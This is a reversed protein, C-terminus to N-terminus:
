RTGRLVSLTSGEVVTSMRLRASGCHYNEARDSFLRDGSRPTRLRLHAVEQAATCGDELLQHLVGV